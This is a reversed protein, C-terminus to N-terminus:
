KITCAFAYIAEGGTTGNKCDLEKVAQEIRLIGIRQDQSVPYHWTTQWTKSAHKERIDM